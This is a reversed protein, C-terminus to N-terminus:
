PATTWHAFKAPIVRVKLEQLLTPATIWDMWLLWDGDEYGGAANLNNHDAMDMRGLFGIGGVGGGEGELIIVKSSTTLTAKAVRHTTLVKSTQTYDAGILIEGAGPGEYVYVIAGNSDNDAGLATTVTVSPTAATYADLETDAHGAFTVEYVPVGAPVLPKVPILCKDEAENLIPNLQYSPAAAQTAGPCVTTRQVVCWPIDGADCRDLVGNVIDVGDGRTFTDGPDGPLYFVENGTTQGVHEFGQSATATLAM